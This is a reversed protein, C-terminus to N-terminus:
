LKIENLTPDPLVAMYCRGWWGVDMHRIFAFRSRRQFEIFARAVGKTPSGRYGVFLDDIYLLTGEQILPDIFRFVPVASEYLDCDITALAIKNEKARFRKGLTETLSEGYYGKITRVRDVYVGHARILALFEKESTSLAGRTGWVAHSPNSTTRPLGKFSDFAFFNMAALDHRRAETLAMRFTRGRHCGYEHYDGEIRCDKIYDFAKVFFRYKEIQRNVQNYAVEDAAGWDALSKGSPLEVWPEELRPEALPFSKGRARRRAAGAPDPRSKKLPKKQTTSRM